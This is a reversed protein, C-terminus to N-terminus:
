EVCNRSTETTHVICHRLKSPIYQARFRLSQGFALLVSRPRSGADDEGVFGAAHQGGDPASPRRAADADGRLPKAVPM